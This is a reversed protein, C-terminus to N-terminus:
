EMAAADLETDIDLEGGPFKVEVVDDGPLLSRAGKDGRLLQLSAFARRPFIAPVGRTEGVGPTEGYVSAVIAQGNSRHFEAMMRALHECTLRPQDCALLMVGDLGPYKEAAALGARISSAMGSEWDPNLVIQASKMDLAARIEAAGAGLVVIVPAIASEAAVRMARALLPEGNCLVLQKPRGLRRSAGAALIVAAISSRATM